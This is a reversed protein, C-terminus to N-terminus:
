RRIVALTKLAQWFLTVGSGHLYLVFHRTLAAEMEPNDKM